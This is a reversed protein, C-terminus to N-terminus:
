LPARETQQDKVCTKPPLEELLQQKVQIRESSRVLYVISQLKNAEGRSTM